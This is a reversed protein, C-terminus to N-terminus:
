ISVNKQKYLHLCFWLSEGISETCERSSSYHQFCQARALLTRLDLAISAIAKSPWYTKVRILPTIVSGGFIIDALVKTKLGKMGKNANSSKICKPDTGNSYGRSQAEGGMARLQAEKGFNGGEGVNKPRGKDIQGTQHTRGAEPPLQKSTPRDALLRLRSHLCRHTQCFPLPFALSLPLSPWHDLSVASKCRGQAPLAQREIM